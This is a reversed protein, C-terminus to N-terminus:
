EPKNTDSQRFYNMSEFNFKQAIFNSPFNKVKENYAEVMGNYIKVKETAEDEIQQKEKLLSVYKENQKLKEQKELSEVLEKMRLNLAFDNNANPENLCTKNLDAVEDLVSQKSINKLFDLFKTYFDYKKTLFQQMIPFNADAKGKLAKLVKRVEAVWIIALSGFAVILIAFVILVILLANMDM